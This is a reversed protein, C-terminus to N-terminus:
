NTKGDQNKPRMPLPGQPIISRCAWKPAPYRALGIFDLSDIFNDFIKKQGNKTQNFLLKGNNAATKRRKTSTCRAPTPIIPFFYSLFSNFDM